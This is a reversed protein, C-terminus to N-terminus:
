KDDMPSDVEINNARFTTSTVRQLDALAKNYDTESRIESNRANALANERQFLLFTTSLGVEYKKREGELQIEANARARRAVLVRQRSTEVAQVANRVEAIVIQEQSRTQASIREQQVRAGALNAQATRNRLPLSITVGVTYNPADSRFLNLFSRNFGGVLFSPAAPVLINPNQITPLNANGLLVNLNRRLIEDNGTFQPVLFDRNNSIGQSIGSLSVTTNLDIQPKTQNKFFDIDIANIERQLKLRQLEPRNEVADKVADELLIAEDSYVPTDTPVLSRTWEASTPDRLLLTKLTNEATSVQQAALLVEGERNALETAVEASEIPAAIGAKIRADVQRLNERSLNLNLVRNQQDRLAFVLDWYARQVQSIVDITQRRFEIDTQQLTRRQVKIRRRTDDIRFDRLLPQNYAVGFNSSYLAGGGAGTGTNGSTLQSQSFSNETRVNDFFVRYNGGGRTIFKTMDSNVRFDNTARSGTSSNRSLTPSVNFVPDYIGLISRLQTEQFRVDARAIEISNNNELALRIAENLTLTLTDGSQVGVRHLVNVNNIEVPNEPKKETKESSKEDPSANTIRALQPSPPPPASELTQAQASSLDCLGTSLSLVLAFFATRYFLKM